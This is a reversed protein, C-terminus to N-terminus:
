TGHWIGYVMYWIGHWLHPGPSGNQLKNSAWSIRKAAQKLGLLDTKNKQDVLALLRPVLALLRPVLALLRPGLSPCPGGLPCVCM